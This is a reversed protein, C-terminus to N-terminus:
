QIFASSPSGFIQPAGSGPLYVRFITGSPHETRSRFGVSGGHKEVMGRTVWLGLGTGTSQKTTVFPTFLRPRVHYPIGCGQDCIMMTVGKDEARRHHRARIHIQGGAGPSADIANVLLNSVVQRIEGKLGIVSLDPELDLTCHVRKGTLKREFLEVITALLENLNIAVPRTTDRYFGLTHQAIQSVRALEGDALELMRRISTPTAPDTKSLYILNTVAELPNNIEHAITAALRGTAALKESLRLAEEQAKRDSIDQVTGVMGGSGSLGELKANGRIAVWRQGGDPRTVRYETSYQGDTEAVARLDEPAFALDERFVLKERLLDRSLPVNPEVGFLEAARKDFDILGTRANWSWTGMQAAELAQMLRQTTARLDSRAADAQAVERSLTEALRANETAVGMQAALVQIFSEVEEDFQGGAPHGFVLTGQPEGARGRVPAALYSRVPESTRALAPALGWEYREDDLVDNSRVSFPITVSSSVGRPAAPESAALGPFETRPKPVSLIDSSGLGAMWRAPAADARSSAEMFFVGATAGSLQIGAELVTQVITGPAREYALRLGTDMLLKLRSDKEMNVNKGCTVTRTISESSLHSASSPKQPWRLPLAFSILLTM